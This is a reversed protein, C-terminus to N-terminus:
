MLGDDSLVTTQGIPVTEFGNSLLADLLDQILFLM